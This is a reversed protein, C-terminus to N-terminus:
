AGSLKAYQVYCLIAKTTNAPTMMTAKAGTTTEMMTAMMMTVPTMMIATMTTAHIKDKDDIDDNVDTPANTVCCKCRLAVEAGLTWRGADLMWCEAVITRRSSTSCKVPTGCSTMYTPSSTPTSIATLTLVPTATVTTTAIATTTTVM